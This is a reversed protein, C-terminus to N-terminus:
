PRDAMCAGRTAAALAPNNSDVMDLDLEMCARISPADDATGGAVVLGAEHLREILARHCWTWPLNIGTAGAALAVALLDVAPLDRDVILLRPIGADVSEAARLEAADFSCVSLRDRAPSTAISRAVPAGTALGKAEITAGVGPHAEIWALTQALTPIREGAFRRHFWAGADLRALGAATQAGVPGHGDTTRDLEDDHFVVAVGDTSLQVDFEIYDVGARAAMEFGSVTNEPAEAAAGRHGGIRLGTGM